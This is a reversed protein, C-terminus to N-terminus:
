GSTEEQRRRIGTDYEHIITRLRAIKRRITRVSLPNDVHGLVRDFKVVATDGFVGIAFGTSVAFRGALTEGDAAVGM